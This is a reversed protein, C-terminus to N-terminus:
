GCRVVRRSIECLNSRAVGYDRSIIVNAPSLSAPVESAELVPRYTSVIWLHSPRRPLAVVDCNSVQIGPSLIQVENLSRIEPPPRFSPHGAGNDPAIPLGSGDLVFTLLQGYDDGTASVRGIVLNSASVNTLTRCVRIQEGELTVRQSLQLPGNAGVNDRLWWPLQPATFVGQAVCAASLALAGALLLVRGLAM